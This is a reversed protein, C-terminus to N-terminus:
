RSKKGSEANEANTGGEPRANGGKEGGEIWTVFEKQAYLIIERVRSQSGQRVQVGAEIGVPRSGRSRSMWSWQCRSRM